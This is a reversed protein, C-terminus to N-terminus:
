TSRKYYKTKSEDMERESPIAKVRSGLMGRLVSFAGIGLSIVIIAVLIGIFVAFGEEVTLIQKINDM